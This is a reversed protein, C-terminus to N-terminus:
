SISTSGPCISMPSMALARGVAIPDSAESEVRVARDAGMALCRRLAAEAGRGGCTVVVVEGGGGLREKIRLAEEAAVADWENLAPDVFDPDVDRGDDTLELEDGLAQVQKVCVVIKM